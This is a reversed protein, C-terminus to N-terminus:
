QGIVQSVQIMELCPNFRNVRMSFPARNRFMANRWSRLTPSVSVQSRVKSLFTDKRHRKQEESNKTGTWIETYDLQQPTLFEGKSSASKVTKVMILLSFSSFFNGRGGHALASLRYWRKTDDLKALYIETDCFGNSKSYLGLFLEPSFQWFGHGCFNNAPLIHIIMGGPRCLERANSLATTVSFIHETTGADIVTNFKPMDKGLPINLDHIISAGEYNSYDISDVSSSGFSRRLTGDIFYEGEAEAKNVISKNYDDYANEKTVHLGQRALTVTAGFERYSKHCFRLFNLSHLDTGM